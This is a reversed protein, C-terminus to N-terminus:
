SRVVLLAGAVLLAAGLLRTPSIPARPFGLIGFQDVLLAMVLQGALVFAILALAGIRPGLLTTGVVYAGGLLGALWAWAPVQGLSSSSVRPALTWACVLLAVLGVVFNIVSAWLPSGLTRGVTANMGVQVTLGAGVGVALLYPWYTGFM